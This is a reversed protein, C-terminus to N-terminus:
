SSLRVCDARSSNRALSGTCARSQRSSSRRGMGIRHCSRTVVSALEDLALGHGDLCLAREARKSSLGLLGSGPLGRARGTLSETAKWGISADEMVWEAGWGTKSM